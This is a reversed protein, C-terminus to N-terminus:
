FGIDGDSTPQLKNPNKLSMLVLEPTKWWKDFLYSAQQSMGCRAPNKVPEAKLSCRLLQVLYDTLKSKSAVHIAHIISRGRAPFM